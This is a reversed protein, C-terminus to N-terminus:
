CGGIETSTNEEQEVGGVSTEGQGGDKGIKGEIAADDGEEEKDSDVQEKGDEHELHRDGPGEDGGEGRDQCGGDVGIGRSCVVGGQGPEM